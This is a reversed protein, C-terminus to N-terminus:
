PSWSGMLGDALRRPDSGDAPLVYIADLGTDDVLPLILSASDPSWLRHSLAYQDFFPLVQLGFLETIRAEQSSRTEGTAVDVFIVRVRYGSDAVGPVFRSPPRAGSISAVDEDGPAPLRLTAITRGDPSWFFAIAQGDVLTRVDGSAVDVLRLPGIPLGLPEATPDAPAIYALSAGSPGFGFAAVGSVPIERRNGGGHSEIVIADSAGNDLIYAVHTGDRSVAPSRFVGATATPAAAAGDLGVEGLFADPGGAAVNLLARGPDIWDWYLPAGQRLIAGTSSGDAPAVRLALAEPETTLFTLQRSDPSWYLYFPPRDPSSYVVRPEAPASPDAGDAARADFVYIGGADGTNGIAGVRRGDPSWAPFEFRAGAVPHAVVSGGRGDMTSLAGNADVIALRAPLPASPAQSVMTALGSIQIAALVFAAALLTLGVAVRLRRRSRPPAPSPGPSAVPEPVPEAVTEPEAVPEPSPEDEDM